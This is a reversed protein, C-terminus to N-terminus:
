LYKDVDNVFLGLLDGRKIFKDKHGMDKRIALLLNEFQFMSEISFEANEAIKGAGIRYSTWKSIVDDSGWVMVKKTFTSFYKIMDEESIEEYNDKGSNLMKLYFETFEEYMPIKKERHQQEIISNSEYIKALVITLVSVLITVVGAIIAAAVETNLSILIGWARTILFYLCFVVLIIILSGLFLQILNNRKLTANNNNM